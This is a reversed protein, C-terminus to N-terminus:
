DMEKCIVMIAGVIMFIIGLFLFASSMGYNYWITSTVMVTGTTGRHYCLFKYLEILAEM